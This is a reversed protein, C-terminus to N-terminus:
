EYRLAEVPRLNAARVAPYVAALVGVTLAVAGGFLFTSPQYLADLWGGPFVMILVETGAYGLGLGFIGGVVSLLVGETVIAKIILGRSWGLARLMGIERTRESVSMMM